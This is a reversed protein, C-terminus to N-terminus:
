SVCLISKGGFSNLVQNVIRSKTPNGFQHQEDWAPLNNTMFYSIAKKHYLLTNRNSKTPRDDRSPTPNNYAMLCLWHCIDIPRIALLDETSFQHDYPYSTVRVRGNQTFTVPRGHKFAMFRHFIRKYSPLDDPAIVELFDTNM